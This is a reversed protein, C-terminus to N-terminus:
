DCNQYMLVASGDPTLVPIWAEAIEDRRALDLELPGLGHEYSWFVIQRMLGALRQICEEPVDAGTWPWMCTDGDHFIAILQDGKIPPSDVDFAPDGLMVLYGEVMRQQCAVGVSQNIYVVGSSHRIVVAMWDEAFTGDPDLEVVRVEGKQVRAYCDNQEELYGM